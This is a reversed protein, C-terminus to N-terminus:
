LGWTWAKFSVGLNMGKSYIIVLKTEGVIPIELSANLISINGSKEMEPFPKSCISLPQNNYILLLLCLFLVPLILVLSYGEKSERSARMVSGESELSLSNRVVM